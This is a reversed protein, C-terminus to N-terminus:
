LSTAWPQLFLPDVKLTHIIPRASSGLKTELVWASRSVGTQLGAGTSDPMEQREEGGWSAQVWLWFCCFYVSPPSNRHVEAKGGPSERGKGSRLRHWALTRGGELGTTRLGYTAVGKPDFPVKVPTM